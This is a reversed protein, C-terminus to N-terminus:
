GLVGGVVLGMWEMWEVTVGLWALFVGVVLFVGADAIAMVGPM